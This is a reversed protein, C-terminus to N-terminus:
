EPSFPHFGSNPIRLNHILRISIRLERGIVKRKVSGLSSYSRCLHGVNTIILLPYCFVSSMKNYATYFSIMVSILSPSFAFTSRYFSLFLVYLLFFFFFSFSFFFPWGRNVSLPFNFYLRYGCVLTSRKSQCKSMQM